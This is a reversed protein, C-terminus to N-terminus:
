EYPVVIDVKFREGLDAFNVTGKYREVLEKIIQTGFGHESKDEKSTALKRDLPKESRLKSNTATIHLVRSDKCKVNELVFSIFAGSLKEAAEVANDLINQALRVLDMDEMPFGPELRAINLDLRISKEQCLSEKVTLVADLYMNGSYTNIRDHAYGDRDDGLAADAETGQKLYSDRLGELIENARMLEAWYKMYAERFKEFYTKGMPLKISDVLELEEKGIAVVKELNVVYSGYCRQFQDPLQRNVESLSLYCNYKRKDTVVVTKRGLREVYIIDKLYIFATTGDTTLQLVKKERDAEYMKRVKNIARPLMVAKNKKLVFYCHEIDYVEPAYELFNTLFIIYCEPAYKNILAGLKIGDYDRGVFDIDLILVDRDFIDQKVAKRIDEPFFLTVEDEEKLNCNNYLCNKTEEQEDKVDDCIGIRM